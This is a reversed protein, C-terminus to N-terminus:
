ECVCVCLVFHFGVPVGQAKSRLLEKAKEATDADVNVPARSLKMNAGGRHQQQQQQQQQMNHASGRPSGTASSQGGSHKGPKLIPKLPAQDPTFKSPANKSSSSSSIKPAVPPGEDDDNFGRLQQLELYGGDSVENGDVDFNDDDNQQQQQHHRTKAAESPLAMVPKGFSTSSSGRLAFPAPGANAPAAPLPADEDYASAAPQKPRLVNYVNDSNGSPKAKSPLPPAGGPGDGDDGDDNDGDAYQEEVSRATLGASPPSAARGKAPLPPRPPVIDGYVAKTSLLHMWDDRNGTNDALDYPNIASYSIGNADDDGDDGYIAEQPEDGYVPEPAPAKRPSASSSAPAPAPASNYTSSSSSGRTPLPQRANYESSSGGGLDDDDDGYIPEQPPPPPPAKGMVGGGGGGGGSGIRGPLQPPPVSASDDGYIPEPAPARGAGARGALPPPPPLASSDDGYIPEPAPGRAGRPPLPLTGRDDGYIPQTNTFQPQNQPFLFIFILIHFPLFFILLICFQSVWSFHSFAFRDEFRQHYGGCM